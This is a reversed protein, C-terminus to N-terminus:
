AQYLNSIDRGLLLYSWNYGKAQTFGVFDRPSEEAESSCQGKGRSIVPRIDLKAPICHIDM